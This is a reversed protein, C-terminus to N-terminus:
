YASRSETLYTICINIVFKNCASFSPLSLWHYVGPSHLLHVAASSGKEVATQALPTLVSMWQLARRTGKSSLVFWRLHHLTLRRPRLQKQWDDPHLPLRLFALNNGAPPPRENSTRRRAHKDQGAAAHHSIICIRSSIIHRSLSNWYRLAQLAQSSGGQEPPCPRRACGDHDFILGNTSFQAPWRRALNACCHIWGEDEHQHEEWQQGRCCRLVDSPVTLWSISQQTLMVRNLCDFSAILWQRTLRASAKRGLATGTDWADKRRSSNPSAANPLQCLVDYSWVRSLLSDGWSKLKIAIVSFELM